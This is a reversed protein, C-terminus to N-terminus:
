VREIVYTPVGALNARRVMDETGGKDMKWNFRQKFAFVVDPKGEDLMQQNRKLGAAKGYRNWDAPFHLHHKGDSNIYDDFFVSAIHDAGTPCCGEILTWPDEDLGLMITKIPDEWKWDRSGCILVRM